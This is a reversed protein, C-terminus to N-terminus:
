WLSPNLIKEDVQFFIDRVVPILAEPFETGWAKKNTEVQTATESGFLIKANPYAKKVYGLALEHRTLNVEKSFQCLEKLVPKAFKMSIPLKDRDMLLLGQLFVSRVYVTKGLEDALEFVGVNEFRRDLINAPIQVMSIGKTKLAQVAKDPSYVSVGLRKVIGQDVFNGLLKSLGKDWIGLLSERHLM